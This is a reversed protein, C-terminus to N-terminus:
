EDSKIMETNLSKKRMANVVTYYIRTISCSENCASLFLIRNFNINDFGWSFRVMAERVNTGMAERVNTGMAERVNTGRSTPLWPRGSM